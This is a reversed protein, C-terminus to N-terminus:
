FKHQSMILNCRANKSKGVFSPEINSIAVREDIAKRYVIHGRKIPLTNVSELLLITVSTV